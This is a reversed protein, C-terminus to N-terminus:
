LASQLAKRLGAAGTEGVVRTTEQGGKFVVLTSQAQVKLQQKLAKEGDYDAVLVTVPLGKDEAQLTKLAKAQARCTPCWGAHFHVAVPQGKSQAAALAAPSYPQIDLAQALPAAVTAISFLLARLLNM